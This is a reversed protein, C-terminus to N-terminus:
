PSGLDHTRADLSAPAASAAPGAMNWAHDGRLWASVRQEGQGMLPIAGGGTPEARTRTSDERLAANEYDMWRAFSTVNVRPWAMGAQWAQGFTSGTGTATFRLTKLQSGGMARDALQLVAVGEDRHACAALTLAPAALLPLISRRQM